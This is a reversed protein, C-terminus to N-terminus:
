KANKKFAIKNIKQKTTENILKTRNKFEKEITNNLKLLKQYTDVSDKLDKENELKEIISNADKTLEELSQSIIDDPLNKDKM